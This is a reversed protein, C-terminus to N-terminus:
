SDAGGAGPFASSREHNFLRRQFPIKLAQLAALRPAPAPLNELRDALGDLGRAWKGRDALAALHQVPVTLSMPRLHDSKAARIHQRHRKLRRLANAEAIRHTRKTKLRLDLNSEGGQPTDEVGESVWDVM